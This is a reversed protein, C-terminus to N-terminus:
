FRAFVNLAAIHNMRNPGSRYMIQNLYGPEVTIVPGVPLGVGAFTRTQDIGSRAGWDTDNLQIFTENWLVARLSGNRTLPLQARVQQRLRWGVQDGGVRFRQEIRTRGGVSLATKKNQVFTYGVQEWLRHEDHPAAGEFRTRIYAYGGTVSWGHALKYTISPRILLQGFRSVNDTFRGHVELTADVKTSVAKSATLSTWIQTDEDKAQAPSAVVALLAVSTPVLIRGGILLRAAAGRFRGALPMKCIRAREHCGATELVAVVVSM